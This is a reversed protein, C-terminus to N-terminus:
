APRRTVKELWARIDTVVEVRGAALDDLGEQIKAHFRETRAAESERFQDVAARVVTEADAYAGSRVQEEVFRDQDADLSIKLTSMAALMRSFLAPEFRQRNMRRM